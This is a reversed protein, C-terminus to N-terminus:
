ISHNSNGSEPKALFYIMGKMGIDGVDAVEFGGEELMERIARRDVHGHRHLRFGSKQQGRDFDILLLRGDPNLVRRAEGIFDQRLPKPLHHLMLTGMVIDFRGDDFPLLQASGVAFSLDLGAREAKMRARDVMGPSADIGFVQGEPGVQRKASIALTGTGCGVDLVTEGSRLGAQRLMRERLERERGFTLFRVLLDYGAAGHLIIGTGRSSSQAVGGLISGGHRSGGLILFAALIIAAVAHLALISLGATLFSSGAHVLALVGVILSLKILLVVAIGRRGLGRSSGLHNAVQHLM